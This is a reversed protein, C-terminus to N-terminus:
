KTPALRELEQFWNFVVKFETTSRDAVVVFREGDLSVDYYSGFGYGSRDFPQEHLKTSTSTQFEPDDTIAVSLFRIGHRFFLERGDRSWVPEEGGDTSIRFVEGEPYSVVYVQYRGSQNSVYAIYRGNPSFAPADENFETALVPVPEEGVPLM